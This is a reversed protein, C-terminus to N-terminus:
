RLVEVSIGVASAIRGWERDATLAPAGLRAALALCARDGLSLGARRVAPVLMAAAYALDEDFHVFTIPLASLLRRVELEDAGARAYFSAVESLNVTTMAAEALVAKVKGGGPEGLLMALLASADLVASTM